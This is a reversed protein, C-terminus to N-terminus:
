QLELALQRKQMLELTSVDIDEMLKLKAEENLILQDNMDMLLRANMMLEAYM